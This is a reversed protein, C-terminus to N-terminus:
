RDAGEAVGPCDLRGSKAWQVLRPWILQMGDVSGSQLGHDAADMRWDCLQEIQGALSTRLAAYAGQPVLADNGGWVRLLPKKAAALPATVRWAFMDRWYRLTRGEVLRDDPLASAAHQEVRDWAKTQGLRSAQMRGVVSPDLGTASVFLMGLPNEVTHILHPAIEAGESIGLVITPLQHNERGAIYQLAAVADDRWAALADYQVFDRSCEAPASGAFIDSYPKHLVLVRARTLGKFYRAAFPAFGTCGSGPVVVLQLLAPGATAERRLGVLQRQPSSGPLVESRWGDPLHRPAAKTSTVDHESMM